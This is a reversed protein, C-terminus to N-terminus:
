NHNLPQDIPNHVDTDNNPLVDSSTLGKLLTVKKVHIQFPAFAIYLIIQAIAFVLSIANPSWIVPDAIAFGYIVWLMTCLLNAFLTPPYLSSANRTKIIQLMKSLPAIYYLIAMLCSVIGIFFAALERQQDSKGFAMASLM